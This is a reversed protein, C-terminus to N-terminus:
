HRLVTIVYYKGNVSELPLYGTIKKKYNPFFLARTGGKASRADVTLIENFETSGNTLFITRFNQPSFTPISGGRLALSLMRERASEQARHHQRQQVWTIKLRTSGGRLALSLMRERASGHARHYQRQQVWTIKM